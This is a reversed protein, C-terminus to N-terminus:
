CEGYIKNNECNANTKAYNNPNGTNLLKFFENRLRFFDDLIAAVLVDIEPIEPFLCFRYASSVNM